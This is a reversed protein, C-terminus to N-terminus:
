RAPRPRLMILVAAVANFAVSLLLGATYDGTLDRVLGILGPGLASIMAIVSTLLGILMGFSAPAFERQLILPPLTIVNGVSFGFLACCALLAFPDTTMAMFLLAWAQSTFSVASTLRPEIRDIYLAGLTLRGVVAMGTTLIVAFSAITRGTMPYLMAIQHVIFAIQAALVLSFAGCITWFRKDRLAMRRTFSAQVTPPAPQRATVHDDPRSIWALASPVILLAVIAAAVLMAQTFGLSATLAVILPSVVIGGCSAGNLALSLALGRREHFWLSIIITIAPLGMVIWAVSMLLFALYLQWPATVHALMTLAAALCLAGALVVLKPGFREILDNAFITLTGSALFTLTSAGSVLSAPWGHIRQLEALYAAHGYFAFGWTCFAMFFCAATVRWGFYARSTERPLARAAAAESSM